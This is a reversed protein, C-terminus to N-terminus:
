DESTTRLLVTGSHYNRPRAFFATKPSRSSMSILAVMMLSFFLSPGRNVKLPPGSQRIIKSETRSQSQSSYLFDGLLM